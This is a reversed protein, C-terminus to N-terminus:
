AHHYKGGSLISSARYLQEVLVLRVLMHPLVLSSLKITADARKMVSENVGFAGGIIFVLRKTGAQMQLDLLKAFAPTDIDRGREDLLVAYDQDKLLKLIAASEQDKDSVKQHAWEVGFQKLRKEYEAIGEAVTHDHVKGPSIILLKM